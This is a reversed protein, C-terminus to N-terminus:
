RQQQHAARNRRHPLASRDSIGPAKCGVQTDRPKQSKLIHPAFGSELLSAQPPVASRATGPDGDDARQCTDRQLLPWIHVSDILRSATWQVECRTLRSEVLGSLTWLAM